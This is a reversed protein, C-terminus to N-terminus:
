RESPPGEARAAVTEGAVEVSFVLEGDLERPVYAALVSGGGSLDAGASTARGSWGSAVHLVREGGSLLPGPEVRLWRLRRAPGGAAAVVQLAPGAVLGPKDIAVAAALGAEFPTVDPGLETGFAPRRRALRCSELAEFGADTAGLDDGAELLREYLPAAQDTPVLAQWGPVGALGARVLLGGADGVGAERAGLEPWAEEDLCTDTVRRLLEAGRPGLVALAAECSSLDTVEVEGAGAGERLVLRLARRGCASSALLRFRTAGIRVLTVEAEVGGRRGLLLTEVAGGVPLDVDAASVRQLAALAGPGSLEYRASSALDVLAVGGLLARVEPGLPYAESPSAHEAEVRAGGDGLRRLLFREPRAWGNRHAMEAGRRVLHDHLPSRRAGAPPRRHRASSALVYYGGYADVARAALYAPVADHRDFRCPDLDGLDLGPDGDVVWNALAWGAGGAAAIGASFGCCHLVNDLDETPGILPEADPTFPIPGNVWARIGVEGLVPVREAAAQALPAFREEDPPFLRGVADPPVRRWPARTGDEWGGLVLGGSDPKLYVRADPDRLTPLDSPIDERRETVVYQHEVATVPVAVGALAGTERGWMGTANVLVECAITGFGGSVAVARRGEVRVGEVRARQVITVGQARAGAAFAQTLQSPDAYGDTAVYAAGELGATSLLPFLDAAERASLLEAEFGIARGSTVLRRVELWRQPSAAVRLSGVRRWGTAGGTETELADYVEVSKQLLRTLGASSRLQGVLGAAHWTSGGALTGQELVVVDRVGRRALHWAVSCGVIGGGVVVVHAEPPVSAPHPGPGATATM